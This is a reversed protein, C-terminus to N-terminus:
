PKECIVHKGAELAARALPLHLHNPSCVHVVDLDDAAVLQEGSDCAREAGLRQAAARSSAPTSAAVAVLRAGALRAWRAHVAGSFGAGIVGVRLGGGSM